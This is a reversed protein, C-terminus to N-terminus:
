YNAILFLIYIYVILLNTVRKKKTFFLNKGSHMNLSTDIYYNMGNGAYIYSFPPKLSKHTLTDNYKYYTSAAM